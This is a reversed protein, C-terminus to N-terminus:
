LSCPASYSTREWDNVRPSRAPCRQAIFLGTAIWATAIWFIGLQTHWTRTISQPLWEALPIGYFGTGEVGYHATIAGLGIQAVFMATVIWFYKLTARMSPTPQLGLLPDTDPVDADEEDAHRQVAFYLALVGIGALLLFVSVISWVLISTTPRNGVLDDPPWNNTYTIDSDPRETM